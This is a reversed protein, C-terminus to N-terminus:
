RIRTTANDGVRLPSPIGLSRDVRAVSMNEQVDMVYVKAIFRKDRYVIFPFGVRVKSEKGKNLVVAGLDKDIRAVKADIIPPPKRGTHIGRRELEALQSEFQNRENKVKAVEENLNAIEGDLADIKKDRDAVTSELNAVQNLLAQQGKKLKGITADRQDIIGNKQGVQTELDKVRNIRDTLRDNLTEKDKSLTGIRDNAADVKDTLNAIERKLSNKLQDKSSLTSQLEKYYKEKKKEAEDYKKKVTAYKGRWQTRKQYLMMQSVAFGTSLLLVFVVLVKAFANM